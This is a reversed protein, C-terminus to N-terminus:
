YGVGERFLHRSPSPKLYYETVPPLIDVGERKTGYERGYPEGESGDDDDYDSDCDAPL